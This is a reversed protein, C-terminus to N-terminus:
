RRIMVRRRIGAVVEWMNEKDSLEWMESLPVRVGLKRCKVIIYNFRDLRGLFPIKEVVIRDGNECLDNFMYEYEAVGSCGMLIVKREKRLLGSIIQAATHQSFKRNRFYEMEDIIIIDAAAYKEVVSGILGYRDKAGIIEWMVDEATIRSVSRGYRIMEGAICSALHTKGSGTLGILFLAGETHESRCYMRIRKKFGIAKAPTHFDRLDNRYTDEVCRIEKVRLM